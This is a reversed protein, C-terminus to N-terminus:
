LFIFLNVFINFFFHCFAFIPSLYFSVPTMQYHEVAMSIVNLFIVISVAIDFFKNTVLKYMLLRYKGYDTYFPRQNMETVYHLLTLFFFSNCLKNLVFLVRNSLMLVVYKM